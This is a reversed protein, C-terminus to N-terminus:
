DETDGESLRARLSECIRCHGDLSQQNDILGHRCPGYLPSDSRPALNSKEEPNQEAGRLRRSAGPGLSLAGSAFIDLNENNVERFLYERFEAVSPRPSETLYRVMEQGIHKNLSRM